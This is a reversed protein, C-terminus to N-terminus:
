GKEVGMVVYIWWCLSFIIASMVMAVVYAWWNIHHAEIISATSIVVTIIAFWMGSKLIRAQRKM